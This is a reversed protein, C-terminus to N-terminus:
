YIFTEGGYLGKFEHHHLKVYLLFLKFAKVYTICRFCKWLEQFMADSNNASDEYLWSATFSNM